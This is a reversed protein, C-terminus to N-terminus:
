RPRREGPRRDPWPQLGVEPAADWLQRDFTALVVTQGIAERWVLAAALQIADYGRLGYQWALTDARAVLGDTVAVRIVDAWDRAFARQARRAAEDDLAGVRVAKAFAAAVEARTVLATAVAVATSTLRVVDDSGTEVVYRKVLASADAYVIM